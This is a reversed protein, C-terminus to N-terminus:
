YNWLKLWSFQTWEFHDTTINFLTCTLWYAWSSFYVLPTVIRNSFYLFWFGQNEPWSAPWCSSGDGGTPGCSHRRCEAVEILFFWRLLLSSCNDMLACLTLGCQLLPKSQNARHHGRHSPVTDASADWCHMGCQQLRSGHWRSMVTTWSTATGCASAGCVLWKPMPLKPVFARRITMGSRIFRDMQHRLPFFFRVKHTWQTFLRYM